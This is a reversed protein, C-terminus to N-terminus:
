TEFGFPELSPEGDAGGLPLLQSSSKDHFIWVIVRCTISLLFSAFTLGRDGKKTIKRSKNTVRNNNQRWKATKEDKQLLVSKWSKGRNCIGNIQIRKTSNRILLASCKKRLRFFEGMGLYEYNQEKSTLGETIKSYYNLKYM